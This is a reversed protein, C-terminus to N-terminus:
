EGCNDTCKASFFVCARWGHRNRCIKNGLLKREADRRRRGYICKTQIEGSIGFSMVDREQSPKYISGNYWSKSALTPSNSGGYILFIRRENETLATIM